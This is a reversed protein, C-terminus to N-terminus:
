LHPQEPTSGCRSETPVSSFGVLARNVSQGRALYQCSLSKLNSHTVDYNVPIIRVIFICYGVHAALM